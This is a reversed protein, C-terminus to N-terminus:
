SSQTRVPLSRISTVTAVPTDSIGSANYALEANMEEDEEIVGLDLNCELKPGKTPPIPALVPTTVDKM